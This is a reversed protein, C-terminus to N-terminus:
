GHHGGGCRGCTVERTTLIAGGFATLTGGCAIRYHRGGQLTYPQGIMRHIPNEDRGDVRVHRATLDLLDPM